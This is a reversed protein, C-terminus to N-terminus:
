LGINPLHLGNDSGEGTDLGVVDQLAEARRRAGRRRPEPGSVVTAANPIETVDRAVRTASVAIGYKSPEHWMALTDGEAAARALPARCLLLAVPFLGTAIPKWM